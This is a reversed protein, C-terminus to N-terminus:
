DPQNRSEPSKGRFRDVIKRIAAIHEPTTGCCGGIISVGLTLLEECKEAMFEPTEPYILIEGKLSPLGANPRIIIPLRSHRKFEQAVIIMNKIGNSCNSGIIDAGAEALGKAALEITVGMITFIGKPTIDFTMMACVPISPLLTKAATVALRAENLDTMTEICIMDINESALAKIQREFGARVVDWSADGYPELLRGCPGCSAAVPARGASAKRAAKIAAINIEETRNELNYLALKLPSAGFTNTQIIEAGANVYASAIEQLLGPNKLNVKEPCEGAKLGKEILMTGMAGDAVLVGGEGLHNILVSIKNLRSM